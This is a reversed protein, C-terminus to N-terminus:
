RDSCPIGDADQGACRIISIDPTESATVLVFTYCCDHM